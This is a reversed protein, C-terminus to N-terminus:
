VSGGTADWDLEETCCRGLGMSLEGSGLAGM